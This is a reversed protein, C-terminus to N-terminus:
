NPQDPCWVAAAPAPTENDPSAPSSPGPEASATITAGARTRGGSRAARHHESSDPRLSAVLDRSITAITTDAANARRDLEHRAQEPPIGQDILVGIAQDIPGLEALSAALSEAGLTPWSLHTDVEAPRHDPGLRGNLDDALLLYAGATSARLILQGTAAGAQLPVALSALVTGPEALASVSVESEMRALLITVALSSPVVLAVDRGLRTLWQALDGGQDSDEHLLRLQEAVTAPIRV